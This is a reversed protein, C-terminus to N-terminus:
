FPHRHKGRYVRYLLFFVFTIQKGYFVSLTGDYEVLLNFIIIYIRLQRPPVIDTHLFSNTKKTAIIKINKDKGKENFLVAMDSEASLAM